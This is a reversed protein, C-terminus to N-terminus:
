RVKVYPIERSRLKRVERAIVSVPIEEYSMDEQLKPPEYLLAHEPDHVYKPLNSVHFVNHVDALKPPLALRYAVAGNRELVEYPGIYRPSLKKRVGFRKVGRMPSVKLFVRDGIAFELDRRCRNAYSRQRSQATFLRRRALHVKEKAERLVDPGLVAREGVDSWHIPSRCKRGYLAEFPAMEISAQYSNNDAFEAM